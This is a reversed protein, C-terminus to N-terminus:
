SVAGVFTARGTHQHDPGVVPGDLLRRGGKFLGSESNQAAVLGPLRLEGTVSEDFTPGTREVDTEVHHRRNPGARQVRHSGALQTDDASEPV